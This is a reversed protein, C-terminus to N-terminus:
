PKGELKDVKAQLLEIQATLREIKGTMEGIREYLGNREGAFRDARERETKLQEQLFEIMEVRANGEARAQRDSQLWKYAGVLVAIVVTSIGSVTLPLNAVGGLEEM